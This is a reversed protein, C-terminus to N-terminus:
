ELAKLESEIEEANKFRGVKIKRIAGGSDILFTTPISGFKYLNKAQRQPDLLIPLIFRSVEDEDTYKDKLMEIRKAADKPEDLCITIIALDTDPSNEQCCTDYMTKIYPLEALCPSCRTSWFNLLVKKGQFDSLSVTEGNNPEPNREDGYEQLTFDPAHNGVEAPLSTLTSFTEPESFAEIESADNAEVKFYYTTDPELGTIRASYSAYQEGTGPEQFVTGQDCAETKGYVVQGESPEKTEWTITACAETINASEAGTIEPPAMDKFQAGVMKDSDMTITITESSAAVDSEWRHFGWGDNPIATLTIETGSKYRLTIPPGPECTKSGSAEEYIEIKGGESPVTISLTYTESTTLPPFFSPRTSPWAVGQSVLRTVYIGGMVLGGLVIVVLLSALLPRPSFKRERREAKAFESLIPSRPPASSTKSPALPVSKYSRFTSDELKSVPTPTAIAAPEQVDRRRMPGSYGCGRQNPCVGRPTSVKTYCRPCMYQLKDDLPEKQKRPASSRARAKQWLDYNPDEWGCYPCIKGDFVHAKPCVRAGCNPCLLEGLNDKKIQVHCKPCLIIKQM